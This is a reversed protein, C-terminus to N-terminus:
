ILLEAVGYVEVTAALPVLEPVTTTPDGDAPYVVVVTKVVAPAVGVVVVTAVALLLWVPVTCPLLLGETILIM